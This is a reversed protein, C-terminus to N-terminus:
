TLDGSHNPKALTQRMYETSAANEVWPDSRHLHKRFLCTCHRPPCCQCGEAAPLRDSLGSAFSAHKRRFGRWLIDSLYLAYPLFLMSIFEILIPLNASRRYTAPPTTRKRFGDRPFDGIHLVLTRRQASVKMRPRANTTLMVEVAGTLADSQQAGHVAGDGGGVPM